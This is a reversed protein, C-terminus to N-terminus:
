LQNTNSVTRSAVDGMAHGGMGDCLVFLTRHEEPMEVVRIYDENYSRLGAESFITYEIRM